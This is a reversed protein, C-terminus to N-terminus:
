NSYKKTIVLEYINDSNKEEWEKYNKIIKLNKYLVDWVPDVEFNIKWAATGVLNYKHVLSSKWNISNQEELWMKFTLGNKSYQSYFQASEKDWKIKAKNKEVIEMSKEMSFAESDILSEYGNKNSVSWNRTYFPIGLVIKDSSIKENKILGDLLSDVWKYQSVSGVKGGNKWHQDYAMLVLYDVTESLEKRDYVEALNVDISVKLGQERLIPTMERMLQSLNNKDESFVNEFDVNIGDLSYMSSYILLESILTERANTSSLLKHTSEKDKFNNALLAWIKYGKSHASDVYEKNARVNLNGNSDKVEFWTPSLIDLGDIKKNVPIDKSNNYIAHWAISIKEKSEDSQTKDKKDNSKNTIKKEKKVFKKDIYGVSGDEARVKYWKKYEKFIKVKDKLINGKLTKVIPQRKSMGKRIFAEDEIIKGYQEDKDIFDIVIVNNEKIYEYKINYFDKLFDFHVYAKGKIEKTASNIKVPKNNVFAQLEGIKMRIVKESTTVTVKKEVSDWLIYPDIHKKAFDVNIMIQDKEIISNSNGEILDAEIVINNAEDNFLDVKDDNVIFIAYVFYISVALAIFVVGSLIIKKM